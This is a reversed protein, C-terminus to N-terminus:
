MGNSVGKNWDTEWITVINYGSERLKNERSMTEEYLQQYTKKAVVNVENPNYRHPNGHWFDGYFEYCTKTDPNFGDVRIYHKKNKVDTKYRRYEPPIGISDLWANEKRSTGLMGCCPCTSNLTIVSRPTAIWEHECKICKWTIKHMDGISSGIRQIERKEEALISDIETDCMSDLGVCRPCKQDQSKINSFSNRFTHNCVNCKLDMSKNSGPYINSIVSIGREGMFDKISELTYRKVGSCTPCGVKAHIVSVPINSWINNCKLCKWEIATTSNVYEGLRIINRGYLKDDVWKNDKRGTKPRCAPCGTGGAYVSNITAEWEKGCKLCSWKGRESYKVDAVDFLRKIGRKSVNADILDNTIKFHRPVM